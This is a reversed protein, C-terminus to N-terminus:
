RKGARLEAPGVAKRKSVVAPRNKSNRGRRLKLSSESARIDRAATFASNKQCLTHNRNRASHSIDPSAQRLPQIADTGRPRPEERHCKSSM